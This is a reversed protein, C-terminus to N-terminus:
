ARQWRYGVGWVTEIKDGSERLKRRLRLVANDVARDGEVYDASWVTDLLYSRSFVRGPNRALLYLLDFERRTLDVVEAEVTLTQTQPDIVLADLVIREADPHADEQLTQEILARRRLMAHVRATLERMSFPKTLYDDAGVELGLVRDFEDARATLMLVPVASHTRLHRLVALGDMGPLMWDLIILNFHQVSCLRLAAEGSLAHDTSYGAAELEKIIAQALEPTDEVLLIHSVFQNLIIQGM